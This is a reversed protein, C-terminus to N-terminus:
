GPQKLWEELLEVADRVFNPCLSEFLHNQRAQELQASDSIDVQLLERCVVTGNRAKFQAMFEQSLRYVEVNAQQAGTHRDWYHLGIVMLAGTVAGCTDARRSMGAGFPAALGHAADHTLGYRPAFAALVSQACSYGSNYHHIAVDVPDQM